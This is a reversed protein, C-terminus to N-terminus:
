PAAKAASPVAFARAQRSREAKLPRLLTEALVDKRIQWDHAAIPVQPALDEMTEIAQQVSEISRDTDIMEYKNEGGSTMRMVWRQEMVELLANLHDWRDAPSDVCEPFQHLMQIAACVTRVSRDQPPAFLVCHLWHQYANRPSAQTARSYLHAAEFHAFDSLLPDYPETYATLQEIQAGTLHDTKALEGLQALYEKRRADESHLARKLGEHRVQVIETRPRDQLRKKLVARYAWYEDPHEVALVYKQKVDELRHSIDQSEPVDGLSAGLSKGHQALVQRSEAAKAGWRSIELPMQWALRGSGVSNTRSNGCFTEMEGSTVTGLSLLASWDWGLGALVRRSQPARLQDVVGTTVVTEKAGAVFLLEGPTLETVAVHPFASAMTGAVERLMEPGLDFYALRQCFIGNESLQRAAHRYFEETYLPQNRLRGAQSSACVIVDYLQASQGMMALPAPAAIVRVREDDFSRTGEAQDLQRAIKLATADPELVTVTRVPFELATSLSTSGALGILLVHDAEVALSLPLAMPVVEVVSQPGAVGRGASLGLAIGDHRILTQEARHRWLSWRGEVTEYESLLRGDDLQTLWNADIGNKLSSFTQTSFLLKESVQPAYNVQVSLAAIIAGCVAALVGRSWASTSQMLWAGNLGVLGLAAALGIIQVLLQPSWTGCLGLVGGATLWLIRLATEAATTRSSKVFVDSLLWGAPWTLLSLLALRAPFLLWLQSVYANLRLHAGTLLPYAVLVVACWAALLLLPESQRRTRPVCGLLAGMLVGSWLGALTFLSGPVLQHAMHFISPLLLGALCTATTQLYANWNLAEAEIAISRSEPQFRWWHGAAIGLCLVGTLLMLVTQGWWGLLTMPLLGLGLCCGLVFLRQEGAQRRPQWWVQGILWIGPLFCISAVGLLWLLRSGPHAVTEWSIGAGLTAALKLLSGFGWTWIALASWTLPQSWRGPVARCAWWASAALGLGAVLMLAGIVATEFGFLLCYQGCALLLLCSVTLGELAAVGQQFSPRPIRRSAAPTTELTWRDILRSVLGSSRM